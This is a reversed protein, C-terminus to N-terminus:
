ASNDAWSPVKMAALERLEPDDARELWEEMKENLKSGSALGGEGQWLGRLALMAKQRSDGGSEARRFVEEFSILSDVM